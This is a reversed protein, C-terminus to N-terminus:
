AKNLPQKLSCRSQSQTEAVSRKLSFWRDQLRIPLQEIEKEMFEETNDIMNTFDRLSSDMMISKRRHPVVEEESWVSGSRLVHLVNLMPRFMPSISFRELREKGSFVASSRRAGSYGGMSILHFVIVIVIVINIVTADAIAMIIVIVKYNDACGGMSARRVPNTSSRRDLNPRSSVFEHM